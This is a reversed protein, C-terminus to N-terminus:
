PAMYSVYRLEMTVKKVYHFVEEINLQHHNSQQDRESLWDLRQRLHNLWERLDSDDSDGRDSPNLKECLPELLETALPMGAAKSFGAGLVFVRKTNKM